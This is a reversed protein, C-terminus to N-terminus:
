AASAKERASQARKRAKQQECNKALCAACRTRGPVVPRGCNEWCYGLALKRRRYKMSSGDPLPKHCHPCQPM